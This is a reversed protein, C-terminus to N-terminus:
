TTGTLYRNHAFRVYVPLDVEAGLVRSYRLDPVLLGSANGGKGDPHSFAPIYFVPVGLVEMWADKYFIRNRKPDHTVRVAKIQWLPAKPCGSGDDIECPSYVARDLRDVGDVREGHVAALRGGDQLVVLINDIAGDRLSETLRMHDGFAQNGGPDIAVVEGRAEVIGTKRDWIVQNARLRYDNRTLIVGGSATVVDSDRDYALTDAAFDILQADSDAQALLPSALALLSVGLALKLRRM